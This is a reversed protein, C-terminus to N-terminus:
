ASTYLITAFFTSSLSCVFVCDYSSKIKHTQNTHTMKIVTYDCYYTASTAKHLTKCHHQFLSIIIATNHLETLSHEKQKKAKIFDEIAKQGAYRKQGELTHAVQEHVVSANSAFSNAIERQLFILLSHCHILM